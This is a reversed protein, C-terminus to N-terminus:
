GIDSYASFLGGAPLGDCGQRLRDFNRASSVPSIIEGTVRTSHMLCMRGRLSNVRAVASAMFQHACATVDGQSSRASKCPM